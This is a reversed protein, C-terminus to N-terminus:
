KELYKHQVFGRKSGYKVYAWTKDYATVTLKANAPITCVCKSSTSNKQYMAVKATTRASINCFVVDLDVTKVAEGDEPEPAASPEPTRPADSAAPQDASLPSASLYQLAAFGQAGSQAEVMAWSENFALVKVRAGRALTGVATATTSPKSRLTLTSGSGVQVYRYLTGYPVFMGEAGSPAGTPALTPLPVGTPLPRDVATPDPRLTPAPISTPSATPRLTATPTASATATPTATAM